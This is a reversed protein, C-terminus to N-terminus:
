ATPEIVRDLKKDSEAEGKETDSPFKQGLFHYACFGGITALLIMAAMPRATPDFSFLKGAIWIATGGLSFQVMGMLASALGSIKPFLSLGIAM